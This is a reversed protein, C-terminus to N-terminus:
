ALQETPFVRRGVDFVVREVEFIPRWGFISHNRKYLQVAIRHAYFM